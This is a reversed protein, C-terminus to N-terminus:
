DHRGSQNQLSLGPHHFRYVCPSKFEGPENQLVVITVRYLKSLSLRSILVIFHNIIDYIPSQGHWNHCFKHRM